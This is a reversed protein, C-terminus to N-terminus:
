DLQHSAILECHRPISQRDAEIPRQIKAVGFALAIGTLADIYGTAYDDLRGQRSTTQGQAFLEAAAMESAARHAVTSVGRQTMNLTAIVRRIDQRFLPDFEPNPKAQFAQAVADLADMYGLSYAQMTEGPQAIAVVGHFTSKLAAIVRTIDSHFYVDFSM